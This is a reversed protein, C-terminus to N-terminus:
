PGAEGRQGSFLCLDVPVRKARNADPTADAREGPKHHHERVRPGDEREECDILRELTNQATM